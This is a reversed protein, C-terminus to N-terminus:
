RKVITAQGSNADVEVLAGDLYVDAETPSPVGLGVSWVSRQRGAADFEVRFEVGLIQEGAVDVVALARPAAAQGTITPAVLSVGSRLDVFSAVEGTAANIAVVVNAQGADSWVVLDMGPQGKEDVAAALGDVAIGHARLFDGAAGMARTASITRGGSPMAAWFAAELAAGSEGDVIAVGAPSTLVYLRHDPAPATALSVDGSTLYTGATAIARAESVPWTPEPSGTPVCACGIPLVGTVAAVGLGLALVFVAGGVVLAGRIARDRMTPEM